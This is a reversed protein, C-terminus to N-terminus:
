FVFGKETAYRVSAGLYEKITSQTPPMGVNSLARVQAKGDKSLVSSSVKRYDPSISHQLLELFTKVRALRGIGLGRLEPMNEYPFFSFGYVIRDQKNARIEGMGTTRDSVFYDFYFVDSHYYKPAPIHTIELRFYQQLERPTLGRVWEVFNGTPLEADLTM